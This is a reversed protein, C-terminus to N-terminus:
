PHSFLYKNPSNPNYPTPPYSSTSVGSPAWGLEELTGVNEDFGTLNMENAITNQRLYQM